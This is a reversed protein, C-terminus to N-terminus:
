LFIFMLVLSRIFKRRRDRRKGGGRKEVFLEVDLKINDNRRTQSLPQTLAQQRASKRERPGRKGANRGWGRWVLSHPFGCVTKASVMIMCPPNKIKTSAAATTHSLPFPTLRLEGPSGEDQGAEGRERSYRESPRRM